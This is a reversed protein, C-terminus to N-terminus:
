MVAASILNAVRRPAELPLLHGCDPLTILSARQLREVVECQLLEASLSKDNDGAVVTVPVEIQSMEHTIDERSGCRLWANWAARSSRLSDDLARELVRASLEQVTTKGLTERTSACNGFGWELRHREAENMPEPTPPSPALLIVKQLGQPRRSAWELAIKGGMAHGIIVFKEVGLADILAAMDDASDEVSYGRRTAESDGFGRLDPAICRYKDSLANVVEHWSRNSSGFGHLFILATEGMGREHNGRERYNLSIGDIQKLM